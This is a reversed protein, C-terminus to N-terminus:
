PLYYRVSTFVMDDIPHPQGNTVFSVGSVTGTGVGSWTNRDFYSYQAGIQFRGKPGQYFRYWFGLTGEIDVRTDATCNALSGPIFGAGATTGAGTTTSPVTETFCGFNSFLPSGYGEAKGASNLYWARADYETGVDAYIDLKPTPHFELGSLGQYNRIPALTGDPRVTVDSLGGSGYRGTGEGALGHVVFDIRKTVPMRANFGVGGGGRSNNFAGVASDTSSNNIACPAATTVNACPFIRDRFEAFLAFVEYHGWGPEFAAKFIFDPLPNFSYNALSNYLGGTAGASGLLFNPNTPTGHATLTAQPNEVSAAIWVKNGFNKAVRFGYQRAWSFGIQYQPDITLPLGETRNDVGHKTETVLSWMQGATFSWGNDLAAQGFAQRQRLSYSNSQNNNSTVAASLFDAEYYGSLKAAGLKGEALLSFRSQRGSGFFESLSADSSGPLPVSSFPTNIDGGTARNRYVTEGALFGGPTLTVGRYHIQMPNELEDVRKTDTQVLATTTATSAQVTSVETQLTTVQDATKASASASADAKSQAQQTATQLQDLQQQTRQLAQNREDVQQKLDQIQKQQETMAAKMEDLEKSVNRPPAKPPVKKRHPKPTATEQAGCFTISLLLMSLVLMLVRKM